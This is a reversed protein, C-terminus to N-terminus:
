ERIVRFVKVLGNEYALQLNRTDLDGGLRVERPGYYVYEVQSLRNLFMEDVGHLFGSIVLEEQDEANVTEFPHGYIVRRGTRAPILLGTDPAALIVADPETHDRIWKFAEVEQQSLMIYPDNRNVAQIGSLAVILNTPLALLAMLLGLLRYRRSNRAIVGLGLGALAAVPIYLGVMLRRQLGWPIYILFLGLMMWVLLLRQEKVSSRWALWAGPLSMLLAPSLSLLVDWLPPSPTQNQANWIRLLPDKLIAWYTYGLVPLGGLCIYIFNQWLSAPQSGTSPSVSEWLILVTLVVLVLAVGFPMVFALSLALLFLIWGSFPRQRSLNVTMISLGLALGLPFHPNTYSSLYPYAEAVWFDSTFAGFLLGLWGMGSGFAALCFALMKGRRDALVCDMFHYLALYLLFASLLRAGHFVGVLPLDFVRALHGLSLYLLYIYAGEGKEATYPLTFRWEGRWGEYMKALYTNGDVPNHLFGGFTYGPHPNLFAYAYPLSLLTLGVLVLIGILAREQRPNM